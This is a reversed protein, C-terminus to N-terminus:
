PSPSINQNLVGVELAGVALAKWAPSDVVLGSDDEQGRQGVVGPRQLDPAVFGLMRLVM